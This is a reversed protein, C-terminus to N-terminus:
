FSNLVQIKRTFTGNETIVQLIFIGPNVGKLDLSLDSANNPESEFVLNGSLSILRIKQVKDGSVIHIIDRAPVPFINLGSFEIEDLNTGSDTIVFDKTIIESTSDSYVSRVGATYNGDALGTFLYSFHEVGSAVPNELDDLFVDYGMFAKNGFRPFEPEGSQLPKPNKVLILDSLYSSYDAKQNFYEFGIDGLNYGLARILLNSQFDGLTEIPRFIDDSVDGAFFHTNYQFPWDPDDGSDAALGLFGPYSLGVLFGNPADIPHSFTYYNWQNNVNSVNEASYIIDDTNPKGLADLGFVWVKVAPHTGGGDTLYWSIAKLRSDNRHATGLVTNLTGGSSGLQGAATGDDFRFEHDDRYSWELLAQGPEVSETYVALNVPATVRDELSVMIDILEGSLSITGSQPLYDSARVTFNYAVFDDVILTVIGNSLTKGTFGSTQDSTLNVYAGGIPGQTSQDLVTFSVEAPVSVKVDDVFLWNFSADDDETVLYNFALYYEGSYGELDIEFQQWTQTFSKIDLLLGNEHLWDPDDHINELILIRIDAMAGDPEQNSIGYFTLIANQLDGFIMPPTILWEDALNESEFGQHTRASFEGSYSAWNTRDWYAGEVGNVYSWGLPPFREEEFGETWPFESITVLVGEGSITITYTDSGSGDNYTIVVEVNKNGESEPGFLVTFVYDEGLEIGQFGQSFDFNELNLSFADDGIVEVSQIELVGGGVNTLSYEKKGPLAGIGALGFDFSNEDPSISFEPGGPVAVASLNLIFDYEQPPPFSSVIAFYTGADLVLNEFSAINGSGSGALRLVQAPNDPDPCDQLIIIGFWTEDSTLSGSLYSTQDLTFSFVMDNGNLYATAPDVWGISYDDGKDSTTGEFDVLPLESIFFPNGCTSGAPRAVGFGTLNVTFSETEDSDGDHYFIIVQGSRVGTESPAFSINFTATQSGSIISPFNGLDDLIFDDENDLTVGEIHLEGLGENSISFTKPATIEVIDAEGFDWEQPTVAFVPDGPIPEYYFDDIYITRYQAPTAGFRFAIYTDTGEYTDFNITYEHYTNPFNSSPITFFETFTTADEPDSMTGIILSPVNDTLNVRSWFRIRNSSINTLEPTILMVDSETDNNSYLRVNNPPSIPPGFTVTEVKAIGPHDVIKSWGAPLDPATVGDFNEFYPADIPEDNGSSQSGMTYTFFCFLLIISLLLKLKM